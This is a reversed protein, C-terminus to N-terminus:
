GDRMLAALRAFERLQDLEGLYEHVRTPDVKFYGHVLLNRFSAMDALNGALQPPLAGLRGLTLFVDRYSAPPPQGAAALLRNGIDLCCQIAVQLNREVRDQLAQDTLYEEHSVGAVQELRRLRDELQYMLDTTSSDLV